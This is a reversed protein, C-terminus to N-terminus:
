CCLPTTTSGRTGRASRGCRRGRTSPCSWPRASFQGPRGATTRRNVAPVDRAPAVYRQTRILSPTEASTFTTAAPLRRHGHQAENPVVPAVNVICCPDSEQDDDTQLKNQVPPPNNRLAHFVPCNKIDSETDRYGTVRLAAFPRQVRLNKPTSRRLIVLM